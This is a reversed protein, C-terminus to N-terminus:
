FGFSIVDSRQKFGKLPKEKIKSYFGFEKGEGLLSQIVQGQRGRWRKELLDSGRM